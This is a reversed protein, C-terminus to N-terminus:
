RMRMISSKKWRISDGYRTDPRRKPAGSPTPIMSGRLECIHNLAKYVRLHNMGMNGAGIVATRIKEHLM